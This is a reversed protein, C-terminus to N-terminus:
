GVGNDGDWVGVFLYHFLLPAIFNPFVIFGSRCRCRSRVMVYGGLGIGLRRPFSSHVVLLGLSCWWWSWWQRGTGLGVLVMLTAVM